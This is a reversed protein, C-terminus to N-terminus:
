LDKKLDFIRKLLEAESILTKPEKSENYISRAEDIKAQYRSQNGVYELYPSSGTHSVLLIIAKDSTADYHVYEEYEENPFGEVLVGDDANQWTLSGNEFAQGDQDTQKGKNTIINYRDESIVKIENASITELQTSEPQYPQNLSM